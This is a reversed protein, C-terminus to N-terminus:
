AARRAAPLARRNPGDSCTAVRGSRLYWLGQASIGLRAAVTTISEGAVIAAEAEDVQANSIRSRVRPRLPTRKQKKMPEDKAQPQTETWLFV